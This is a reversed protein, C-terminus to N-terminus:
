YGRISATVLRAVEKSRRRRAWYSGGETAQAAIAAVAARVEDIGEQVTHGPRLTGAAQALRSLERRTLEALVPNDAERDLVRRLAPAHNVAAQYAARLADMPSGEGIEMQVDLCGELTTVWRQHLARVLDDREPFEERMEIEDVRENRLYRDILRRRHHTHQWDNNM